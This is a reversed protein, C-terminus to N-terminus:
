EREWVVRVLPEGEAQHFSVEGKHASQVAKGLRRALHGTTTAIELEEGRSEIWLIRNLPRQKQAEGEQNRVLNMIEERHAPWYGGRLYVYGGPYRDLERRCAPCITRHAQQPLADSRQWHGDRYLLECRECVTPEPHKRGEYYPNESEWGVQGRRDHRM